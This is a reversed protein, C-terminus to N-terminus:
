AKLFIKRSFLFWALTLNIATFVCALLAEGWVGLSAAVPGGVLAKSLDESKLLDRLMYLTIANMGIWVFPTAWARWGRVDIVWYFAGLLVLSYGGAVLVYSSTWLKKIVPFHMGWAWGAAAVVIGALILTAAKRTPDAKANRLYGGALVGLLCTAIAPIMSLMGEPDHTKDWKRGPLYHLDIWNAWNHQPGEAFDGAVGGPVPVFCMLAWYGLLLSACSIIRGRTGTFCFILGAFLGAIAIRQLVGVFRVDDLGKAIGGYFILGLTYLVLFRLVLKRITAARGSSELSKSLSFVLSVGSVFVFLPFVLDLFRFGQWEVHSLQTAFFQPIPHDSAHGIAGAVEEMGLIWFMDFGRLADLSVLRKQLAPEPLPMSAAYVFGGGARRM